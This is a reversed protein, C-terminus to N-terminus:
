RTLGTTSTSTESPRMGKWVKLEGTDFYSGSDNKRRETTTTCGVIHRLGEHDFLPKHGRCTPSARASPDGECCQDDLGILEQNQERIPAPRLPQPAEEPLFYWGVLNTQPLPGSTTCPPRRRGFFDRPPRAWASHDIPGDSGLSTTPRQAMLSEHPVFWRTSVGLAVYVRPQEHDQV